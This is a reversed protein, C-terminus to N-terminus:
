SASRWGDRVERYGDEVGQLIMKDMEIGLNLRIWQQFLGIEKEVLPSHISFEIIWCDIRDRYCHRVRIWGNCFVKRMLINRAKGEYGIPENTKEYEEQIEEASIGFLSPDKIVASIHTSFTVEIYQDGRIWYGERNV